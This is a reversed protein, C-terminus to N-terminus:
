STTGAVVGEAECPRGSSASSMVGQDRLILRFVVRALGGSASSSVSGLGGGPWCSNREGVEGASSGVPDESAVLSALSISVVGSGWPGLVAQQM